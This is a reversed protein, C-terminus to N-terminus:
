LVEDIQMQLDADTVPRTRVEEMTDTRIYKVVRQKPWVELFCEIDEMQYGTRLKNGCSRVAAESSMIRAKYDKRIGDLEETLRDVENQADAMQNAIELKDGTTLQRRCMIFEKKDLTFSNESM